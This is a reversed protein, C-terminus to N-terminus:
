LSIRPHRGWVLTSSQAFSNLVSKPTRTVTTNGFGHVFDKMVGWGILLRHTAKTAALYFVRAVEKEDKGEAPMHGVGPLAAVPFELGQSCKRTM